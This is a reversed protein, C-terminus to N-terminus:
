AHAAILMLLLVAHVWRRQALDPLVLLGGVLLGWFWDLDPHLSFGVNVLVLRAIYALATTPPM